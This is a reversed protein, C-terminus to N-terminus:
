YMPIYVSHPVSLRNEDLGSECRHDLSSHIQCFIIDKSMKLLCKLLAASQSSGRGDAIPVM